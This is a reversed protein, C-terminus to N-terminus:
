FQQLVSKNKKYAINYQSHLIHLIIHNFIYVNQLIRQM